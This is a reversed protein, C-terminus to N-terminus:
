LLLVYFMGPNQLCSIVEQFMSEGQSGYEKTFSADDSCINRYMDYGMILVGGEKYWNKIKSVRQRISDSSLVLTHKLKRKLGQPVWKGFEASWNELTNVPGLILVSEFLPAKTSTISDQPKEFYNMVPNCLITTVFTVVLLTKGLM